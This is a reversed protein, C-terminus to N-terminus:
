HQQSQIRDMWAIFENFSVTGSKDADLSALVGEATHAAGDVLGNRVLDAYLRAFEARDISGRRDTDFYRFYAAASQLRQLGAEDTHAFKSSTRWWRVFDREDVQGAGDMNMEALVDGLASQPVFIGLDKIFPKKARAKKSFCCLLFRVTFFAPM